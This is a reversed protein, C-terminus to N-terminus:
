GAGFSPVRSHDSSRRPSAVGRSESALCVPQIERRINASIYLTVFDIRGFTLIEVFGCNPCANYWHEQTSNLYAAEIRRRGGITPSSEMIVKSDHFTSTRIRALSVPDGEGEGRGAEVAFRDVEALYLDRIPM